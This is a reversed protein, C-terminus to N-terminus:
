RAEYYGEMYRTLQDFPLTKQKGTEMRRITVENKALEDPGAIIVFPIRKKDAFKFQKALKDSGLYIEAPINADILTNFITLSSAIDDPDFVTVLAKSTACIDTFRGQQELLLMIREFGFAVGMGSFDQDSFLACLNDYRGGACITGFDSDASVVEFILGTYYDLGRALTPDILLNQEPISLQKCLDLFTQMETTNYAALKELTKANTSEPKLATIVQQANSIGIAQLEDVVAQEGIKDLKDIIRIAALVDGDSVNYSSLVANLLRRSNLKITINGIELRSFV